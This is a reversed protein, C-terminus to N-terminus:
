TMRGSMDHSDAGPIEDATHGDAAIWEPLSGGCAPCSGPFWGNDRVVGWFDPGQDEWRLTCTPCTVVVRAV